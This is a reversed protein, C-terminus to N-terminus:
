PIAVSSAGSPADRPASATTVVALLRREQAKPSLGFAPGVARKRLLSLEFLSGETGAESDACLTAADMM